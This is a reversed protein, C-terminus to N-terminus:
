VQRRSLKWVVGAVLLLVLLVSAYTLTLDSAPQTRGGTRPMQPTSAEAAPVATQAPVLSVGDIDFDGEAAGVWKKSGRFLLTLRAGQSRITSTYTEIRYGDSPLTARPQEEWPLTVWQIDPSQWDATGAYDIGYQLQYGYDSKAVSGEDSRVLGHITLLYEAAPAVTVVQFLGVCRDPERADKLALLQAHAGDFLIEEWTDDQWSAQVAGCAFRHWGVAIGEVFGQEYDGNVIMNAGAPGAGQAPTATPENVSATPSASAPRTLTENVIAPEALEDATPYITPSPIPTAPPAAAPPRRDPHHSSERASLSAADAVVAGGFVFIATVVACIGPWRSHRGHWVGM